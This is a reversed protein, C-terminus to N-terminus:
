RSSEVEILPELPYHTQKQEGIDSIDVLDTKTRLVLKEKLELSLVTDHPDLVSLYVILPPNLPPPAPPARAGGISQSKTKNPHRKPLRSKLSYNYGRMVLLAFGM